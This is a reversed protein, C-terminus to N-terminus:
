LINEVRPMEALFLQEMHELLQACQIAAQASEGYALAVPLAALERDILELRDHSLFLCLWRHVRGWEQEAERSLAYAHPLDGNKTAESISELRQSMGRSATNAYWLGLVCALIVLALMGWAVYIRKM